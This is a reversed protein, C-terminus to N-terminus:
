LVPKSNSPTRSDYIDKIIEEATREDDWVGLTEMFTELPHQEATEIMQVPIIIETALPQESEAIGFKKGQEKSNVLIQMLTIAQRLIDTKNSALKSALEELQENLEASLDLNLHVMERTDNM